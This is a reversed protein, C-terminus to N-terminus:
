RELFSARNALGTLEDHYAYYALPEKLRKRETAAAQSSASRRGRQLPSATRSRTIFEPSRLPLMGAHRISLRVRGIDVVLFPGEYGGVEREDALVGRLTAM